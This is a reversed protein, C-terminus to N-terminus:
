NVQTPIYSKVQNPHTPLGHHSNTTRPKRKKKCIKLNHKDLIDEFRNRGVPRNGEFHKRYMHWLKKGGLCLAHERVGSIFQIVFVDETIRNLVKKEDYKYYTKWKRNKIILGVLLPLLNSFISLVVVYAM